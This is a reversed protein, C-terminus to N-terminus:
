RAGKAMAIVTRLIISLDFALSYNSVYYLDYSLKTKTDEHSSAYRYRIQAWGTLGPKVLHRLHYQPLQKELQTVFEPREPRPGVFAMDGRLINWFQPLEDLRSLRLFKGIPTVRDDNKKAWVAGNKEADIRMTRFKWIDFSKGYQGVRKQSYFIPGPSFIKMLVIIVLGVPLSALLGIVALFIDLCRKDWQGAYTGTCFGHIRLLQRDTLTNLDIEGFIKEKFRSYPRILCGSKSIELYHDMVWNAAQSHDEVIVEHPNLTRLVQPLEAEFEALPTKETVPLFFAPLFFNSFSAEIRANMEEFVSPRGVFVVLHRARAVWGRTVIRFLVTLVVCFLGSYFIIYRGVQDHVTWTTAITLIAMASFTSILSTGLIRSVSNLHVFDHSDLIHRFCAMFFGFILGLKLPSYFIPLGNYYSPSAWHALLFSVLGILVDFFIWVWPPLYIITRAIPRFFRLRKHSTRSGRVYSATNKETEKVATNM